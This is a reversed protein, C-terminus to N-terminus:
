AGAKMAAVDRREGFSPVRNTAACSTSMLKKESSSSFTSCIRSTCPAVFIFGISRYSMGHSWLRSPAAPQASAKASVMRRTERLQVAAPIPAATTSDCQNM